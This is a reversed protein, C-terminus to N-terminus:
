CISTLPARLRRFILTKSKSNKTLFFNTQGKELTYYAHFYTAEGMQSFILLNFSFSSLGTSFNLLIKEKLFTKSDELTYYACFYTMKGIQSFNPSNLNLSGSRM